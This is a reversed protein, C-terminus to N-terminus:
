DLYKLSTYLIMNEEIANKWYQHVHKTIKEMRIKAAEKCFPISAFLIVKYLHLQDQWLNCVILAIVLQLLFVTCIFVKVNKSFMVLDSCVEISHLSASAKKINENVTSQTSNITESKQIGIHAAQAVIPMDKGDVKWYGDKIELM